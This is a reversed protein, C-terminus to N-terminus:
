IWLSSLFIRKYTMWKTHLLLTVHRGIFFKLLCFSILLSLSCVTGPGARKVDFHLLKEQNLTMELQNHSALLKKSGDTVVVKKPNTVAVHYPSGTVTVTWKIM